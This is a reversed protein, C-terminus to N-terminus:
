EFIAAVQQPRDGLCEKISIYFSITWASFTTGVVTAFVMYAFFQQEPTMQIVWKGALIVYTWHFLYAVTSFILCNLILMPSHLRAMKWAAQWSAGLTNKDIAFYPDFVCFIYFFIVGPVFYAFYTLWYNLMGVPILLWFSRGFRVAGAAVSAWFGRADEEWRDLIVRGGITKHLAAFAIVAIFTLLQLAYYEGYAMRQVDLPKNVYHGVIFEPIAECLLCVVVFRWTNQALLRAARNVVTLPSLPSTM